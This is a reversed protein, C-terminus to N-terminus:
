DLVSRLTGTGPGAPLSRPAVATRLTTSSPQDSGCTPGRHEGRDGYGVIDVVLAVSFGAAPDLQRDPIPPATLRHRVVQVIRTVAVPQRHACVAPRTVRSRGGAEGRGGREAARGALRDPRRRPRPRRGPHRRPLRAARASRRGGGPSTALASTATALAATDTEDVEGSALVDEELIYFWGDVITRLAGADGDAVTLHEVLRRYVTQLHHRPTETESIQIESTAFRHRRAREAIWRAAFTKGSGWEGRVAKFV